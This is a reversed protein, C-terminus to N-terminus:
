KYKLCIVHKNRLEDRKNWKKIEMDDEDNFQILNTLTKNNLSESRAEMLEEAYDDLEEIDKTEEFDKFTMEGGKIQNIMDIFDKKIIAPKNGQHLIIYLVKFYISRKEFRSEYILQKDFMPAFSSNYDSLDVNLLYGILNDVLEQKINKHNEPDIMEAYWEKPMPVGDSKIFAFRRDDSAITKTDLHNTFIIYSAHNIGTYARGFKVNIPIEEETIASKMKDTNKDKTDAENMVILLKTDVGGNYNGIVNDVTSNGWAFDGLFQCISNTFMNKGLGPVSSLQLCIRNRSEPHQIIYAFFKILFQKKEQNVNYEFELKKNIIRETAMLDLIKDHYKNLTECKEPYKPSYLSLVSNDKSYITYEEKTQRFAMIRIAQSLTIVIEEQCDKEKNTLLLKIKTPNARQIKDFNEITQTKINGSKDLFALDLCQPNDSTMKKFFIFGNYIIDALQLINVPYTLKEIVENITYKLEGFESPNIVDKFSIKQERAKKIATKTATSNIVINKHTQTIYQYQPKIFENFLENDSIEPNEFIKYRIQKILDHYWQSQTSPLFKKFNINILYDDVYDKIKDKGKIKSPIVDYKLSSLYTKLKDYTESEESIFTDDEETKGCIMFKFDNENLTPLYPSPKRNELCKGSFPFRFIRQSRVYVSCDICEAFKSNFKKVNSNFLSFLNYLSVRNFYYKSLYLHASFEKYTNPNYVIKINKTTGLYTKLLYKIWGTPKNDGESSMKCTEVYGGFYQKFNKNIIELLKKIQSLGKCIDSENEQELINLEHCDIDFFLRSYDGRLVESVDHTMYFNNQLLQEPIESISFNLNTHISSHLNFSSFAPNKAKMKKAKDLSVYYFTVDNTDEYTNNPHQTNWNNYTNTARTTKTSMRKTSLFLSFVIDFFLGTPTKISAHFMNQFANNINKM